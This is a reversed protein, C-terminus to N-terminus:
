RFIAYLAAFILFATLLRHGAHVRGNPSLRTQETWYIGTGPIGATVRHGHSGLTYWFGRHGLSLSLGRKSINARVGPILNIRKWIRLSMARAKTGTATFDIKRLWTGM